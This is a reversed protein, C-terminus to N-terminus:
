MTTWRTRVSAASIRAMSCVARWRRLQPLTKACACLLPIQPAAASGPLWPTPPLDGSRAILIAMAIALAIKPPCRLAKCSIAQALFLGARTGLM